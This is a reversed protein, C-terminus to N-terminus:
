RDRSGANSRQRRTSHEGSRRSRNCLPPRHNGARAPAEERCMAMAQCILAIVNEDYGTIRLQLPQRTAQFVTPVARLFAVAAVLGAYRAPDLRILNLPVADVLAALATLTPGRGADVQPFASPNTAMDPFMRDAAAIVDSPLVRPM